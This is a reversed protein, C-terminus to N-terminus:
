WSRYPVKSPEIPVDRQSNKVLFSRASMASQKPHPTPGVVVEHLRFHRESDVLPFKYFPILMSKGERFSFAEFSCMLPRSILRWEREDRFSYDKLIPAYRHLYANLNGGPPLMVEETKGLRERAVNEEIVEQVLASVLEGQVKPDYICPALYWQEQAAVEALFAGEFGISFGSSHGGYARWQSLSDREESFSCVCVNMSEIGGLGNEMDQLISHLDRNGFARTAGIQDRVMDVAHSYERWDNLYQTHTAWIETGEVIGM